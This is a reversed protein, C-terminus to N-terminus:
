RGAAAAPRLGRRAARSSITAGGGRAGPRRGAGSGPAGFLDPVAAGRGASPRPGPKPGPAPVHGLQTRQESCAWRSGLVDRGWRRVGGSQDPRSTRPLTRRAM